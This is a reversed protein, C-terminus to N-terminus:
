TRGPIDFFFLREVILVAFFGLAAVITWKLVILGLRRYRADGSWLYMGFCAASFALLAFIIWRLAM